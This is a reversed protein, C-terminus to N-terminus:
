RSGRPQSFRETDSFLPVVAGDSRSASSAPHMMKFQQARDDAAEISVDIQSAEFPVHDLLVRVVLVTPERAPWGQPYVEGAALENSGHGSDQMRQTQSGAGTACGSAEDKQKPRIPPLGPGPLRLAPSETGRRLAWSCGDLRELPAHCRKCWSEQAFTYSDRVVYKRAPEHGVLRCIIRM